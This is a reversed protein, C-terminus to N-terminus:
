EIKKNKTAAFMCVKELLQLNYIKIQVFFSKDSWLEGLVVTHILHLIM